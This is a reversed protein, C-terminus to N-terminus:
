RRMAQREIKELEKALTSRKKAKGLRENFVRRWHRYIKITV